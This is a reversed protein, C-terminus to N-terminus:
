GDKTADLVGADAPRGSILEADALRDKLTAYQIGLYQVVGNDNRGRIDGLATTKLTTTM